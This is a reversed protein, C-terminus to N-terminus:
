GRPRTELTDIKWEGEVKLLDMREPRGVLPNQLRATARDGEEEVEVALGEIDDQSLDPNLGAALELVEVCSRGARRAAPARDIERRLRVTLQGCASEGDGDVIAGFYGRVTDDPQADDGCGGALLAASALLLAFWECMRWKPLFHDM